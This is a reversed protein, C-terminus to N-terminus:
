VSGAPQTPPYICAGDISIGGLSSGRFWTMGPFPKPNRVAFPSDPVKPRIAALASETLSDNMGVVRIDLSDIWLDPRKRLTQHVRRYAQAPGNEDVFASALYLIWREEETPKAWFAVQVNFGDAALEEILHRGADTRERVMPEQDM